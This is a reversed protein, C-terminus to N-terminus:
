FARVARVLFTGNKDGYTQDGDSFRQVYSGDSYCETSSWYYDRWTTGLNFGGMNFLCLNTYMSDLEDQSPLFWDSYGGLNLSDCLDAATNSLPDGNVIDVTNQAGTGVATSDAGAIMTGRTGWICSTQDIAAAELYRWSPSGSYSGKDYFVLGGAPGTDRLHYISDLTTAAVQDGYATGESNTAYARIFYTTKIHLGTIISSFSGTGTGNSTIVDNITPNELTSFCVGRAVVSAGGDDTVTGGITITTCTVNSLSSTEVTPSSPTNEAPNSCFFLSIVYLIPFVVVLVKKM